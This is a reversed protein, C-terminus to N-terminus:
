VRRFRDEQGTGSGLTAEFRLLLSHLEGTRRLDTPRVGVYRLLQNRFSNASAFGLVLAVNEVSRGADQLFHCARVLRTWVVLKGLSPLGASRLQACLTKPHRHCRRAVEGPTLCETAELLLRPLLDRLPPPMRRELLSLAQA